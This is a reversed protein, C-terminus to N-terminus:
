DTTKTYRITVYAAKSALDSSAVGINVSAGGNSVGGWTKTYYNNDYTFNLPVGNNVLGDISIISSVSSINIPTSIAGSAPTTFFFTKQYIPKGDIWKLGTDQEETSYDIGGAGGDTGTYQVKNKMIVGM